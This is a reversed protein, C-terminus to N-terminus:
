IHTRTFFSYKSLHDQYHFVFRYGEDPLSQFDMLDVQGRDNSNKSLIPKVVVGAGTVEKKRLKEICRECM